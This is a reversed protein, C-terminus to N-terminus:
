RGSHAKKVERPGFPARRRVSSQKLGTRGGVCAIRNPRRSAARHLRCRSTVSPSFPFEVRTRFPRALPTLCMKPTTASRQSRASTRGELFLAAAATGGSAAAQPTHRQPTLTSFHAVLVFTGPGRGGLSGGLSRDSMPLTCRWSAVSSLIRNILRTSERGSRRASTGSNGRNKQWRQLVQM